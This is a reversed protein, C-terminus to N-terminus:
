TRTDQEIQYVMVQDTGLDPVMVFRNSPDINVSHPHPVQQRIPYVSSGRHYVVSEQKGIKGDNEIHFCFVTGRKYNALFLLDSSLVVSSWEIIRIWYSM